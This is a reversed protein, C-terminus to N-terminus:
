LPPTTASEAKRKPKPPTLPAEDKALSRLLIVRVMAFAASSDGDGIQIRSIDKYDPHFLKLARALLEASSNSGATTAKGKGVQRVFAYAVPPLEEFHQLALKRYLGFIYDESHGDMVQICAAIRMPASTYVACSSNCNELLRDHVEALGGSALYAVQQPTANGGYVMKSAYRCGEATKKSLGTTDSISRKAGIDLVSFASDPVGHVVLMQQAIGAKIIAVLRHQGDILHGSEAFAIGQHTPLWEGRRMAAALAEAWWRRLRRNGNNLKLWQEAMEPTVLLIQAQM